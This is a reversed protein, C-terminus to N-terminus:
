KTTYVEIILSITITLLYALILIYETPIASDIFKVLSKIIGPGKQYLGLKEDEQMMEIILEKQKNKKM